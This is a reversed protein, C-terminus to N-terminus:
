FFHILLLSLFFLFSSFFISSIFGTPINVLVGKFVNRLKHCSARQLWYLILMCMPLGAPTSLTPQGPLMLEGLHGLFHCLSLLLDKPESLPTLLPTEGL